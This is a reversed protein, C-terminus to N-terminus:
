ILVQSTYCALDRVTQAFSWLGFRKATMLTTLTADGMTITKTVFRPVALSTGNGSFALGVRDSM